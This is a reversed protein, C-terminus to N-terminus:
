IDGKFAGKLRPTTKVLESATEHLCESAYDAERRDTIQEFWLAAATVVMDTLMVLRGNIDRLEGLTVPIRTSAPSHPHEALIQDLHEFATQKAM